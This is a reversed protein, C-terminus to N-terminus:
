YKSITFYYWNLIYKKIDLIDIQSAPLHKKICNLFEGDKLFNNFEKKSIYQKNVIRLLLDLIESAKKINNSSILIEFIESYDISKFEQPYRLNSYNILKSSFCDELCINSKTIM